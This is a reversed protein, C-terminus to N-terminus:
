LKTHKFLQEPCLKLILSVWKWLWTVYVINKKTQIASYIIDAVAKPEATLIAPLNLHSTMKTKVFGPIVTMVHVNTKAFRARMGSLFGILGAKASGYIYNSARVREGAVSTIGVIIGSDRKQFKNALLGLVRAPGTYNTQIILQAYADDKEARKQEGLLGVACVVVDPLILLSDVFQKHSEFALADFNHITVPQQYRTQIDSQYTKLLDMNRGALQILHGSEAFRRAIEIGIDSTGALILVNRKTM